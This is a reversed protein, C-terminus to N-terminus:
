VVSGARSAETATDFGSAPPGRELESDAVVFAPTRQDPRVGLITVRSDTIESVGRLLPELRAQSLGRGMAGELRRSQKSSEEELRSLRQATLSSRLQPVVYLYVFGVAAATIALFLLVLRTRLSM